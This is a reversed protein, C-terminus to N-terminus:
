HPSLLLTRLHDLSTFLLPAEGLVVVDGNRLSQLDEPLLVRDNVLTGNYSGRDRISFHGAVDVIEAHLRSVTPQDVVLDVTDSRGLLKTGGAVLPLCSAGLVPQQKGWTTPLLQGRGPVTAREIPPAEGPAFSWPELPVLLPSPGIEAKAKEPASRLLEFLAGVKPGVPM